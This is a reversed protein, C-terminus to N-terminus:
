VYILENNLFTADYILEGKKLCKSCTAMAKIEERSNDIIKNMKWKSAATKPIQVVTNRQFLVSKTRSNKGYFRQNFPLTALQKWDEMGLMKAISIYTDNNKTVYYNQCPSVCGPEPFGNELLYMYAEDHEFDNKSPKPAAKQYKTPQKSSVAPQKSVAPKKNYTRKPKSDVAKRKKANQYTSPKLAKKTKENHVAVVTVQREAEKLVTICNGADTCKINNITDVTMGVQLPTSAFLSDKALSIITVVGGTGVLGIGLKSGKTPKFVTATVKNNTSNNTPAGASSYNNTAAAVAVAATPSPNVARRVVVNRQRSASAQFLAVWGKVGDKIDALTVGNLRVIVDGVQLPSAANNKQSVVCTGDTEQRYIGVGLSGPALTLRVEESTSTM